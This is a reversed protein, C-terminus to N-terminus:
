YLLKRMLLPMRKASIMLFNELKKKIKGRTKPHAMVFALVQPDESESIKILDNSTLKDYNQFLRENTNKNSLIKRASKMNKGRLIFVNYV